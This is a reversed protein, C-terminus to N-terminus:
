LKQETAAQARVQVFICLFVHNYYTIPFDNSCGSRLYRGFQSWPISRTWISPIVGQLCFSVIVPHPRFPYRRSPVMAAQDWPKFVLWEAAYQQKHSVDKGDTM